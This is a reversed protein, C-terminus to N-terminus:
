LVSRAEFHSQETTVDQWSALREYEEPFAEKQIHRYWFTEANAIEDVSLEKPCDHKKLKLNAVFRLVYATVCILKIWREYRGHDIVPKNSVTVFNQVPKAKREKQADRTSAQNLKQNPWTEEASSLWSPGKWRLDSEKLNRSTVGRTLLDAPNEVGPCHRWKQPDWMQQIEAVRNAVFTKWQSSLGRIWHLTVESDTWCVIREIEKSASLSEAVFKLLRSNIAAALLEFRHLSVVKAPAVRTKSMVLHTDVDGNQQTVRVYLVADYAKPSADGFGHLEVSTGFKGNQMFCRPISIENIKPLETKWANWQQLIDEPLQEDWQLGRNWLQQFLIKSRITYPSLLGMPDFIKSADSLMNRRTECEHLLFQNQPIHFEFCDTLTNWCIGLAKLPEMERFDILANSARNKEEVHSLVDETNSSWKTLNFAARHMLEALAKQLNVAEEKDDAGTLCDDVYMDDMVRKAAEPFELMFREAHNQVTAIALFPSCNVGFAVRTMRYITPSGDIQMDRWVYRHVDRDKEALKIQLFMKEIDAM